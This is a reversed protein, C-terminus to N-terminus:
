LEIEGLLIAKALAEERTAAGLKARIRKFHLDVTVLAIGLREAIDASRLGQALYLLCDRERASLRKGPARESSWEARGQLAEHAIFGMLQLSECHTELYREFRTRKRGSGLNWGGFHGPNCLRVPSAIGSIMGTEGAERIFGREAKSLLHANQALYERGTRHPNFSKCIKFFPDRSALGEDMYYEGWWDPLNSLVLGRDQPARPRMYMYIVHEIGCEDFAQRTACWVDALSGARQLREAFAPIVNGRGHDTGNSHSHWAM